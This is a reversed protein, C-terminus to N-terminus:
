ARQKRTKYLSLGIGGFIIGLVIILSYVIPVDGGIFEHYLMKGGIFVLVLSLAKSLYEFRNVMAALSFYLTRLGLIAFINSTYVIYPDQTVGFIAPVSDVAFIVDAFEVLVLAVFLPTVWLISKGKSAPARVFFKMGHLKDTVPLHKRMWRLLRNNEIEGPHGGTFLMKVGTFLLFAGFVALVWQFEAVLAAGIGIMLGRLVLVSIIGWFLVRHQYQVPISLSGFILSIVFINDLSLSQEMVYGTYFELAKEQGMEFWIFGGFLLAIGVYFLTGIVSEKVGPKRAEKHFLGLDLALLGFVIGLFALWFWAPSGLFPTTLFAGDM